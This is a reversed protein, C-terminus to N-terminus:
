QVNIVTFPITLTVSGNGGTPANMGCISLPANKYASVPLTWQDSYFVGIQDATQTGDLYGQFGVLPYAGIAFDLIIKGNYPVSGANLRMLTQAENPLIAKNKGPPAILQIETATTGDFSLIQDATLTATCLGEGGVPVQKANCTALQANLTATFLILLSCIAKM